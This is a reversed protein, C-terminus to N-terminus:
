CKFVSVAFISVSFVISFLCLLEVLVSLERPDSMCLLIPEFMEASESPVLPNM